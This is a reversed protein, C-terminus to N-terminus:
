KAIAGAIDGDLARLDSRFIAQVDSTARAPGTPGAGGGRGGGGFAPTTEPEPNIKSGATAIYSRQLERRFADVKVSPASLESFIGSRVDGVLDGLAFAADASPSLASYEMVRELRRDNFL